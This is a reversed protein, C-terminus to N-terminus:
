GTFNMEYVFEDELDPEAEFRESTLVPRGFASAQRRCCRRPRPAPLSADRRKMIAIATAISEIDTVTPTSRVVLKGYGIDSPINRTV